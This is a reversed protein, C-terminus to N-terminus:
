GLRKLEADITKKRLKQAGDPPSATHPHPLHNMPRRATGGDLLCGMPFRQIAGAQPFRARAVSAAGWESDTWTMRFTGYALM